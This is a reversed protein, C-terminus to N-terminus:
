EKFGTLEHALAKDMLVWTRARGDNTSMDEFEDESYCLGAAEFIGNDIVCILAKGEPVSGFFQPRQIIEAKHLSVLQRAKKLRDPVQIYFGM